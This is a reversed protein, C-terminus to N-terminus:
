SAPLGDDLFNYYPGGFHTVRNGMQRACVFGNGNGPQGFSWIGSSPDDVLGPVGYGQATLSDVTLRQYGVPCGGSPAAAQATEGGMVAGLAVAVIVVATRKNRGM